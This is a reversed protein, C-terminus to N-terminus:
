VQSITYILESFNYLMNETQIKLNYTIEFILDNYKLKDYSNMNQYDIYKFLLALRQSLIKINEATEMQESRLIEDEM